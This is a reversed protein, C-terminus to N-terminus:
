RKCPRPAVCGRGSPAISPTASPVSRRLLGNAPPPRIRAAPRGSRVTVATETRIILLARHRQDIEVDLQGGFLPGNAVHHVLEGRLYQPGGAPLEIGQGVWGVDDGRLRNQPVDEVLVAGEAELRVGIEVAVQRRYLAAAQAVDDGLLHAPAVGAEGDAQADGVEGAHQRLEGALGLQDLAEAIGAGDAAPAAGLRMVAAVEDDELVLESRLLVALRVAERATVPVGEDDVPLLGRPHGVAGDGGRGRQEAGDVHAVADLSDAAEDHREVQRTHRAALREVLDSLAREVLTLDVEVFHPNRGVVHHDAGIM